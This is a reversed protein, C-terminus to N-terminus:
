IHLQISNRASTLLTLPRTSAGLYVSHTSLYQSSWFRLYAIQTQAKIVIGLTTIYDGPVTISPGGIIYRFQLPGVKRETM